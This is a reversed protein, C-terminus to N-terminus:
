GSPWSDWPPIVSLMADSCNLWLWVKPRISICDAIGYEGSGIEISEIVFPDEASGDGSFVGNEATFDELSDITIADHAVLESAARAAQGGPSVEALLPLVLVIAVMVAISLPGAGSQAM